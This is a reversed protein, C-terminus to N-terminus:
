DPRESTRWNGAVPRGLHAREEAVRTLIEDHRQQNSQAKEPTPAHSCQDCGTLNIEVISRGCIGCPVYYMREDRQRLPPRNPQKFHGRRYNTVIEGPVLDWSDGSLVVNSRIRVEGSRDSNV